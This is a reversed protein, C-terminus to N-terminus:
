DLPKEYSLIAFGNHAYQDFQLGARVLAEVRYGKHSNVYDYMAQEVTKGDAGSARIDDLVIIATESLLGEAWSFGDLVDQYTHDADIFLVGISKDKHPSEKWNVNRFDDQIVLSNTPFYASMNKIMQERAANAVEKTGFELDYPDIGVTLPTGDMGASLLSFGTWTGQEVYAENPTLEHAAYYLIKAIRPSTMGKTLMRLTIFRADDFDNMLLTPLRNLFSNINM